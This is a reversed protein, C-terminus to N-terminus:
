NRSSQRKEYASKAKAKHEKELKDLEKRAGELSSRLEDIWMEFSTYQELPAGYTNPIGEEIGDVYGQLYAQRESYKSMSIQEKVHILQIKM